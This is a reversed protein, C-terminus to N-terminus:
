LIHVEPFPIIFKVKGDLYMKERALIFDKFHWPLLLFYDPNYEGISDSSVIPIFSGPTLKGFKFPNVGVIADLVSINIDCYQLTVNVKTSAGYGLIFAGESKLCQLTSILSEKLNSTREAFALLPDISTFLNKKEFM